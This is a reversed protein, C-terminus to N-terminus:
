GRRAQQQVLAHTDFFSQHEVVKGDRMRWRIACEFQFPKRPRGGRPMYDGEVQFLGWVIDGKSVIEKPMFRRFVYGASIEATVELVGLRGAYTGGFLFPGRVTSGSKWVVNEAIVDFLPRLDAQEFGRAIKRMAITPTSM